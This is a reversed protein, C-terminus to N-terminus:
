RCEIQEPTLSGRIVPADNAGTVTVTVEVHATEGSPDTARVFITYGDMNSDYDLKKGAAVSIQGTADTLPSTTSSTSPLQDEDGPEDNEAGDASMM